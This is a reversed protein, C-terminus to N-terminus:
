LKHNNKERNHAIILKGKEEFSSSLLNKLLAALQNKYKKELFSFPFTPTM